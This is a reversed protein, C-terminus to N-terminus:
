GSRGQAFQAVANLAKTILVTRSSRVANSCLTSDIGRLVVLIVAVADEAQKVVRDFAAIKACAFRINISESFDTIQNDIL